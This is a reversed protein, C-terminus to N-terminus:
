SKTSKKNKMYQLCESHLLMYQEHGIIGFKMNHLIGQVQLLLKYIVINENQKM